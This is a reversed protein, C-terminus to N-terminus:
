ALLGLTLVTTAAAGALTRIHNWATWTRLYDAWLAAGAAGSEDARDLAQNRPVNVLFTVAIVGLLYGLGGALRWGSGAPGAAVPATAVLVLSAGATGLFVLAFLPNLIAANMARMAAAGREPPLRRLGPLVAVSFAFMLGAVLGTGVTAAVTAVTILTTM